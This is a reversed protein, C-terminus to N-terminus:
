EMCILFESFYINPKMSMETM